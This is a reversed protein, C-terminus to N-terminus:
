KATDPFMSIRLKTCGYPVLELASGDAAKAKLRLPAALPWGWKAPMPTRVVQADALVRSSDLRWDTRAGPAPTNDDQEPLGYAFLLPGYALSCYPKGGDNFDRMTEVKPAMPFRLSVADGTKWERDVVAFGDAGVPISLTDGNVAICPNVCWEPVRLRLPFKLPKAPSVTMELTENFPYDTKTEIRVASGDLETELTNPAYLTAALGGAAPKMWM